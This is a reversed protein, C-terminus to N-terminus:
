RARMIELIRDCTGKLNFHRLYVEQCKQQMKEIQSKPMTRLVGEIKDIEDLKFFLCFEKWDIVDDFPCRFIDSIYVPICGMQIAEYMRFSTIGSGRPCLCFKSGRMVNRFLNTDHQGFYFGPRTGYMERLQKRVPHTTFSGVFSALWQASDDCKVPHPDCLLPIIINHEVRCDCVFTVCGRDMLFPDILTGGDYQCITFYKGAPMIDALLRMCADKQKGYGNNVHWATWFLPIYTYGNVEPAAKFYVDAFEEIMPGRQHAPYNVNIKQRFEDPIKLYNM